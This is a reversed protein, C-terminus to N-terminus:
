TLRLALSRDESSATMTKHDRLPVQSKFYDTRSLFQASCAALLHSALRMDGVERSKKTTTEETQPAWRAARGGVRPTLRSEEREEEMAALRVVAQETELM